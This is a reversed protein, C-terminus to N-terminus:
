IPATGVPEEILEAIKAVFRKSIRIAAAAEEPSVKSDPGVGYDAIAKLQCTRSLFGRLETDVRPESRTLRGFEHNVGNHSKVVKGISEVIFAQAAHLAALYSERGAEDPWRDLMGDAKSLAENAKDLFAAAEPRV